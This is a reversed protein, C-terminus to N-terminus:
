LVMAFGGGNGAATPKRCRARGTAFAAAASM